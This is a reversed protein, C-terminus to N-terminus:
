NIGCVSKTTANTNGWIKCAYEPHDIFPNRNGQISKDAIAENRQIETAAVPYQLNWKLLDSLKGMTKGSGTNADVLSLSSSAVVCYFIIRAADGRYKELGFSEMAPDWGNSSHKMGEVYFSNGRSGNEKTLTPRPMHIDGDISDGGKSKPWVHERNITGSFSGTFKESTGSYYCILNGPKAPDGDTRPYYAGFNKYGITRIRKQSNLTRLQGLLTTGEASSSITTYYAADGSHSSSSSSSSSTSTQSTNSSSDDISSSSEGNTTCAALSMVLGFLILFKYNKM